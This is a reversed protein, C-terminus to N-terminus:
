SVGGAAVFVAAFGGLFLGLAFVMMGAIRLAYLTAETDPLALVRRALGPKALTAFGAAGAVAAIGSMLAIARTM